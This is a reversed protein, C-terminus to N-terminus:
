RAADELLWIVSRMLWRCIGAIWNAAGRGAREQLARGEELLQRREQEPSRVGEPQTQVTYTTQSM